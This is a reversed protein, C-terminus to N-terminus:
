TRHFQKELDRLSLRIATPRGHPCSSAKEAEAAQDLLGQIEAPSLPTGAKIAAKCSMMALVEEIVQEPQVTQEETLTDLLERLFGRMEVGREALLTPYHQIAWSNPGFPAIEFGLRALLDTHEELLAAEAATVELPEPILMGQSALPGSTLRRQLDNYHLREHLAHQDVIMMGNETETLIYSNHIQMIPRTPPRATSLELASPQPADRRTDDSITHPAPETSNRNELRKAPQQEIDPANQRRLAESVPASAPTNDPPALRTETTPRTAGAHHNSDDLRPQPPPASKFFDAMAQRVSHGRQNQKGPNDKNDPPWDDADALDADPTLNGKRLTEKLTALLEGYVRNSDRFRVEIKTPHVNVDVDAPDLELFIFVVPYKTPALLGRYAERIAHAILRDRVYRGNLFVYQWKASARAATPPAVLGAVRVEANREALPILSEALDPTFLDAIRRRTSDTAPLNLSERGNHQVTFAVHPHPLAVRTLQETIHGFETNTTRLFKRRAPTNFFLDRVTVTTGPAAPCPTPEDIGEGAASVEWGNDADPLTTRIRAHSISAISALAEGRFGMTHIAFLDDEGSIKSTAHPAFALELDQKEMGGGNDRVSLLRRGGDEVTVDIRTAGADLANELLEKLVSAPREIVEGAAIKNVLHIPLKAIRAM